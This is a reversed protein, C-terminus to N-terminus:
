LSHNQVWGGLDCNTQIPMLFTLSTIQGHISSPINSTKNYSCYLINDIM